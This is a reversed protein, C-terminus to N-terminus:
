DLDVAVLAAGFDDGPGGGNPIPTTIIQDNPTTTTADAHLGSRTGYLIHVDGPTSITGPEGVALDSIGDGNFDSPAKGTCTAAAAPRSSTVAVCMAGVATGALLGIAM